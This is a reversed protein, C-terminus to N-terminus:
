NNRFKSIIYNGIVGCFHGFFVISLYGLIISILIAITERTAKDKLYKTNKKSVFILKLIFYSLLSGVLFPVILTFILAYIVIVGLGEGGPISM